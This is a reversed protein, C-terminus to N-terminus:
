AQPEWPTSRGLSAAIRRWRTQLTADIDGYPTEARCGGRVISEDALVRWHGDRLEEALQQRVLELDAPHVWLRMAGSSAPNIHLVERVGALMAAPQEALTTRLVQGAIDLALTLLAQGMQAELAAVSSGCADALAHLRLAEERAQERGQALGEQYGADRGAAYGEQHGQERGERLGTERGQQLGDRHGAEEARARAERLLEEPDPGPEPESEPPLIEVADEVPQDFASMQWRRWAGRPLADSAYRRPDSM